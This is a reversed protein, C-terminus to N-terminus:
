PASAPTSNAPAASVPTSASSASRRRKPPEYDYPRVANVRNGDEYVGEPDHKISVRIKVPKYLLVNIDQTPGTVGCALYIDTLLRRGIEVAQQSTNTLPVNQFIKCGKHDGETIEFVAFLYNGNGNAADRVEVETIHASYWERPIPEFKTGEQAGPDFMEPLQDHYSEIM